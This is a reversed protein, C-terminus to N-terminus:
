ACMTSCGQLHSPALWGSSCASTLACVLVQGCKASSHMAHPPHKHYISRLASCDASCQVGVPVALVTPKAVPAGAMCPVDQNICYENKSASQTSGDVWGLRSLMVTDSYCAQVLEASEHNSHSKFSRTYITDSSSRRPSRYLARAISALESEVARSSLQYLLHPM